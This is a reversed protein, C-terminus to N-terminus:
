LLPTQPLAPLISVSNPPMKSPLLEHCQQRGENVVLEIKRRESEQEPRWRKEFTMYVPMFM